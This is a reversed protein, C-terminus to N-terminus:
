HDAPVQNLIRKVTYEDRLAEMLAASNSFDTLDLSGGRETKEPWSYWRYRLVKGATMRRYISMSQTANWTEAATSFPQENDFRAVMDSAPFRRIGWNILTSYGDGRVISFEDGTSWVCRDEREIADYRCHSFWRIGSPLDIQATWTKTALLWKLGRWEGECTTALPTTNTCAGLAKTAELRDVTNGSSQVESKAVHPRRQASTQVSLSALGALILSGLLRSRM